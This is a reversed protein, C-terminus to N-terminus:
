PLAGVNKHHYKLVPVSRPSPPAASNRRHRYRLLRCRCGGLALDPPQELRRKSVPRGCRRGRSRGRINWAM